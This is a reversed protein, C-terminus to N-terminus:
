ELNKKIGEYDEKLIRIRDRYSWSNLYEENGAAHRYEKGRLELYFNLTATIKYKTSQINEQIGGTECALKWDYKKNIERHGERMKQKKERQSVAIDKLYERIKAVMVKFAVRDKNTQQTTM